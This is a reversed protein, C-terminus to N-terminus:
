RSPAASKKVPIPRFFFFSLSSLFSSKVRGWLNRTIGGPIWTSNRQLSGLWIVTLNWWSDLHFGSSCSIWTSEISDM